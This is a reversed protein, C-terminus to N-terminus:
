LNGNDALHWRAGRREGELRVLGERRLSEMLRTTQFRSMQTIERIESNGLPGHRLAALVRGKANERSLRADVHYALAEGLSACAHRSLRYYRGRGATGGAEVLRERSSLRSLIERAGELPRQCVRATERASIERHRTLYHLVLLDDVALDPHERVLRVFAPSASQGKVTVTVTQATASYFPPEKGEALLDRFARPVGLNAANALRVRTLIGFLAPYRPTSPHHLINDATVDGPFGGPNSIEIRDPYQKLVVGGPAQFDRHVLANVLLERLALHPYRPFEAHILDSKITIVPNDAEVLERLRRLAVAICDHGREAQDYDTDSRMRFYSWQVHPLHRRIPETRGVLLLGATILASDGDILGLSQLLDEDTLNTLDRPAAAEAMLARLEEMAAPRVLDPWDGAVPLATIESGAERRISDLEALTMGRLGEDLRILYKGDQTHFVMGAPRPPVHMALVPGEPHDIRLFDVRIRASDHISARIRSLDEDSPWAFALVRRPQKDSIGTFLWGGGSNGLGVAYEALERRGLLSPKFEVHEGENGAMFRDLEAATM